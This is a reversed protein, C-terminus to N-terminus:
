DFKPTFNIIGKTTDSWGATPLADEFLRNMEEVLSLMPYSRNGSSTRNSRWITPIM